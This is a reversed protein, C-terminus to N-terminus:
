EEIRRPRRPETRPPHGIPDGGRRRLVLDTGARLDGGDLRPVPADDGDAVPRDRRGRLVALEADERRAGLGLPVELRGARLLAELAVADHARDRQWREDIQEAVRAGGLRLRGRPTKWKAR